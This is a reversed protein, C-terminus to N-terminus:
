LCKENADYNTGSAENLHWVGQYGNSTDFVTSAKSSDSAGLKGFYMKCYVASDNGKITDVLVWLVASKATANWQEIQYALHVGNPKAFRIDQGNSQAAAFVASDAATLRILVPFNIQTVSVNAGAAKTNLVVDRNSAWQSYDEQAMVTSVALTVTLMVLLSCQKLRM